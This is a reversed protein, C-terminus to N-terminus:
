LRLRESLNKTNLTRLDVLLAGVEKTQLALETGTEVVELLAQERSEVLRL